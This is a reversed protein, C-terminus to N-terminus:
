CDLKLSSYLLFLQPKSIEAYESNFSKQQNDLINLKKILSKDTLKKVDDDGVKKELKAVVNNYDFDDGIQFFSFENYKVEDDNVITANEIIVQSAGVLAMVLFIKFVINYIKM